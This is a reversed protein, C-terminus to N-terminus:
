GRAEWGYDVYEWSVRDNRFRLLAYGEEFGHRPGNWWSGSVAGVNAYEIDKFTWSENIHLHGGLVLKVPHRHLIQAVEDCNAVVAKRPDPGRNGNEFEWFSTFLPIHMAVITPKSAAALDKQLWTQQALDVHGTYERKRIGVSDLLVFHWGAHDFSTYTSDRGFRQLFYGKGFLPNGKRVGSAASVGLSDHNGLCHHVPVGVGEFATDFLDYQRDAAAVGTDLIDMVLDGGTILLDPPVPQAMAHDVARKLGEAAGKHGNVHSDTFFAATFDAPGDLAAGVRPLALAAAGLASTRLLDRRTLRV